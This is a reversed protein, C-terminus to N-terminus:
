FGNIFMGIRRDGFTRTSLLSDTTALDSNESPSFWESVLVSVETYPSSLSVGRGM